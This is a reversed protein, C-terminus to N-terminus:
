PLFRSHPLGFLRIELCRFAEYIDLGIRKLLGFEAPWSAPHTRWDIKLNPQVKDFQQLIMAARHLHNPLSIVEASTWGHQHMIRASYYINQITNLAQPEEVIAAAPVGEASALQAMVHAEVFRNHAAGGTMILHPAVGARYERVAEDVRVQQAPSTGGNAAAPVGLVLIVDFHAATTNNTPTAQENIFAAACVVLALLLFIRSLKM